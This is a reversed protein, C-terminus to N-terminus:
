IPMRLNGLTDPVQFKKRDLTKLITEIDDHERILKLTTKPGIGRISDCYDCGLLICLDIFEDHTLGLGEVAKANNMTQVMSKSQNAFTMKRLLVPTAFTLAYMDETATAYVQGSKALAAAQAEAECPAL